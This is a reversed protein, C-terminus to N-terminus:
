VPSFWNKTNKGKQAHDLCTMIMDRCGSSFCSWLVLLVVASPIDSRMPCLGEGKTPVKMKEESWFDKPIVKELITDWTESIWKTVKDSLDKKVDIANNEELAPPISRKQADFCFTFIKEILCAKKMVSLSLTPM